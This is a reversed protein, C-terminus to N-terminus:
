VSNESDDEIREDFRHQMEYARGPVIFHTEIAHHDVLLVCNPHAGTMTMRVWDLNTLSTPTEVKIGSDPPIQDRLIHAEHATAMVIYVARGLNAFEYAQALMRSTRGTGRLENQIM